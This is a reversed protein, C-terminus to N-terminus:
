CCHSSENAWVLCTDRGWVVPCHPSSDGVNAQASTLLSACPAASHDGVYVSVLLEEKTAPLTPFQLKNDGDMSGEGDTRPVSPGVKRKQVVNKYKIDRRPPTLQVVPAIQKSVGCAHRGHQREGLEVSVVTVHGSRRWCSPLTQAALLSWQHRTPSYCRECLLRGEHQAATSTGDHWYDLTTSQWAAVIIHLHHYFFPRTSVSKVLTQWLSTEHVSTFLM